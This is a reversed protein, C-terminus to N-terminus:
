CTRKASTSCNHTSRTTSLLLSVMLLDPDLEQLMADIQQQLEPDSLDINEPVVPEHAAAAHAALCHQRQAPRQRPGPALKVGTTRPLRVHRAMLVSKQMMM